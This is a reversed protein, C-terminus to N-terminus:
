RPQTVRRKSCFSVADRLLGARTPTVSLGILAALRGAKGRAIEGEDQADLARRDEAASGVPVALTSLLVLDAVHRAEAEDRPAQMSYYRGYAAAHFLFNNGVAFVKVLRDYYAALVAPKPPKKSLTFLGHLDEASQFAQQWLELEIATNLQQFRADLHRQLTEPESLNISHAQNSARQSAAVHQRFTECARRFETKRNYKLCFNLV